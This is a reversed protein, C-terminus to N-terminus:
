RREADCIFDRGALYIQLKNKKHEVGKPMV